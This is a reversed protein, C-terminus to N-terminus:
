REMAVFREVARNRAEAPFGGRVEYDESRKGDSVTVAHKAKGRAGRVMLTRQRFEVTEKFSYVKVAVNM